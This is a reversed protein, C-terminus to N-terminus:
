YDIASMYVHVIQIFNPHLGSIIWKIPFLNHMYM